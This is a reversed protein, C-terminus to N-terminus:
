DQAGDVHGFLEQEFEERRVEIRATPFITSSALSSKRELLSDLTEDFSKFHRSVAMPYYVFVDRTQGIRYARDTAQNEKAPNWHRSYHIVNNAATVNLGMGAAIPSMIIINFGGVAQFADISQQRTLTDAGMHRAPLSPTEGNIIKAIIGYRALFIKQLMKQTERYEAFVIVKENRMRIEDIFKITTILRASSEALTGAPLDSWTHDYIYPHECIQRMSLIAKLISPQTGSTYDTVVRSYKEEQVEPMEAKQRVIHKQPLDAAADKKLRRMFYIGLRDHVENGLRVIDTDLNKLPNQYKAAFERANGLLGPVCFDMICWLDLLTNEVPTGTMAVRFDGKLAKAANTVMTGPSKIRQAEDLVIVSFNVACFNLQSNRLSEYSTLVIDEEQLRRIVNQDIRRPVDRGTLRRVRLRPEDFFRRYENEWNELLTVPAVILYPRHDPHMRAHCDIFYLIQLTKGLGMDDAMLCGSAHNEYLYQLWAVGERQHQKLEFSRSLYRDAHLVWSGSKKLDMRKPAFGLSEANEEIILVKRGQYEGSVPKQPNELQRRATKSLFEADGLDIPSGKYHILTEGKAKAEAIIADLENLESFDDVTIKSTGNEPTEISAGAIWSSKYPCVFPYFKPKYLGIEIVRDSYFESLDFHDPDFYETAKSAIEQMEELSRHRGGSKIRQLDEKQEHDLVVRVRSGDEKQVPYVGLIRRLRDFSRQFGPNQESDIAPELTFGEADRGIEIKIKEPIYVNENGLYSDLHCGAQLALSKIQSFARLNSDFTRTEEPTANFADVKEKLEYQAESLLYSSKGTDIVNGTAKVPFLEGDPAHSLFDLQCRFSAEHLMGKGRLRIAMPYMDPIGLIKRDDEDLLYVSEFPVVCANGDTSANGNDTLESLPLYYIRSDGDKWEAFPLVSTKNSITFVFGRSEIEIHFM